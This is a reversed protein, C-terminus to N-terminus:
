KGLVTKPLFGIDQKGLAIVPRAVLVRDFPEEGTDDSPETVGYLGAAIALLTNHTVIFDKTVYLSNSDEVSICQCEEMGVNEISEIYRVPVYKDNPKYIISKRTLRFPSIGSPLVINVQFAKKGELKQKNHTYFKTKEKWKATGGLSQVIFVIDDRLKESVTVFFINKGARYDLTGDSDLLGQLISIRNESSTIKYDEPIFKDASKCGYLGYEEIAVRLSHKKNNRKIRKFSYDYDSKHKICTDSPLLEIFSNITETDASSFLINYDLCGDGLLFGLLYPDINITKSVFEVKDVLPISHNRKGQKGYRLSNMIEKTSRTKFGKGQDRELSTKTDWLHDLSCRTSSGDSFKIEYIDLKGQPHISLVKTPKGSRSVVMDGVEVDGMVTWGDPSLVPESLPQSKGTGAKGVLTVLKINPDLLLDMAFRQEMNRPILGMPANDKTIETIKFVRSTSEDYRVLATHKENVDSVLKICQNPVWGSNLSISEENYLDDIMKRTVWCNDKGTYLTDFDVRDNKYSEAKVGIANAKVRANTDNSVFIVETDDNGHLFTSYLHAVSIIRNDNVIKKMEAPMSTFYEDPCFEISLKGGVELEVGKDLEGQERLEDLKRGIERANRGIESMDNKHTDLEELVTMPIVIDNGNFRFISHPDHLLVNTDIVFVKHVM